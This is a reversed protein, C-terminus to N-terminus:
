IEELRKVYKNYIAQIKNLAILQEKLQQLIIDKRDLFWETAENVDLALGEEIEELTLKDNVM